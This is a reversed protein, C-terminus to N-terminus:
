LERREELKKQLTAKLRERKLSNLKREHYEIRENLWLLYCDLCISGSPDGNDTKSDVRGFVRGCNVCVLDM